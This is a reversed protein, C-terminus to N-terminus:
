KDVDVIRDKTPIVTDLERLFRERANPVLIFYVLTSRFLSSKNLGRIEGPSLELPKRRSYSYPAIYKM